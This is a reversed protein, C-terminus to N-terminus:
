WNKNYIVSIFTQKQNNQWWMKTVLSINSSTYLLCPQAKVTDVTVADNGKIITGCIETPKDYYDVFVEYKTSDRICM